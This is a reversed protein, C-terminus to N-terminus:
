VKATLWILDNRNVAIAFEHIKPDFGYREWIDIIDYIARIQNDTLKVTDEERTLREYLEVLLVEFIEPDESELMLKVTAPIYQFLIEDELESLSSLDADDLFAEIDSSSTEGSLFLCLMTLVMGVLPKM